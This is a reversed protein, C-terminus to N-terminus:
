RPALPFLVREYLCVRHGVESDAVVSSASSSVDMDSAVGETREIEDYDDSEGSSCSRGDFDQSVDIRSHKKPACREFTTNQADEDGSLAVVMACKFVSLEAESM